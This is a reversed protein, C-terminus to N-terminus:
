DDAKCFSTLIRGPVFRVRGAGQRDQNNAKNTRVRIEPDWAPGCAAQRAAVTGRFLWPGAKTTGTLLRSRAGPAAEDLPHSRTRLFALADPAAALLRCARSKAARRVTRPARGRPM